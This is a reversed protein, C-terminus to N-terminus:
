NNLAQKAEPEDFIGLVGICLVIDFSNGYGKPLEMVSAVEFCAGPVKQQAIEILEKSIDLGTFQIKPFRNMLHKILAGTAYGVDLAKGSKSISGCKIKEAIVKGLEKFNEKISHHDSKTYIEKGRYKSSVTQSM